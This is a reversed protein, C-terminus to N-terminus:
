LSVDDGGEDTDPDHTDSEVILARVRHKLWKDTPEHYHLYQFAILQHDM